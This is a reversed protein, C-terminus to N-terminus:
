KLSHDVQWLGHINGEPDKFFCLWGSEPIAMKPVVITGGAKEIAAIKKDMNFVTISNTVPQQPDRKKTIAGNIGSTSEDGTIAFWYDEDGFKEFTWGFVEAFFDMERQPNESPIEFHTVRNNM